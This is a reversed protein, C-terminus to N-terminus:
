PKHVSCAPPSLSCLSLEFFSDVRVNRPWALTSRRAGPVTSNDELTTPMHRWFGYVSDKHNSGKLNRSSEPKSPQIVLGSTVIREPRPPCASPDSPLRFAQNRSSAEGQGLWDSLTGLRTVTVQVAFATQHLPAALRTQTCSPPTNNGGLAEGGGEPSFLQHPMQERHVRSCHVKSRTTASHSVGFFNYCFSQEIELFQCDDARESGLLSSAVAMQFFHALRDIEARLSDRLECLSIWDNDYEHNTSM